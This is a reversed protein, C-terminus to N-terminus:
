KFELKYYLDVGSEGSGAQTELQWQKFIDYRLRFLNSGTFLSRGYSIYLQPTLYKGVTLVTTTIGSQLATPISGPATVPLPKYGMSGAPAGVGGQIELTNLGFLNKLQDQVDAAQGSTLLAGAAKTMLSAQEGNSEYPHGLVIYTLIDVDPMAPESYLKVVPKQISGTVTVGSKVNGITRLALFDLTPHDIPGGAFFLRGRVIELDVGYTRYRGKAVTIEGRSTIRDLSTLQLDVAGGLRADIGAVKVFVREGLLVKIQVDLALSTNAAPPVIIGELIIDSSPTIVTHSSVGDFQLEPLRLEGRLNLKQPTGEFSLEPTSLIRLEPLYVTQFNKGRIIGNYGTVRWGSLTLLASGEIHGSGSLARFSDIRVLNKELRASLQVDKLHIGAAPLYAGAKALQLTGGIQPLEWTGSLVLEADINGFSKQVYGPFLATIIGQEQLQGVMSAQLPGEPNVAIPFHAPVPLQFNARAQGYESMNLALTGALAEGRWKWSADASTFALDQGGRHLAGGSLSATGDLEFREGPLLFGNARGNIIGEVGSDGPLWPKLLAVDIGSWEATLKGKEPIALFLPVTSSFTGKLRGGTAENLEVGVQLGRDGGDFTVQSREITISGGKGTYTGDGTASGSLTLRKGSLLELQVTGQSRGTIQLDKLYPNVRALSLNGWQARLRGTLPKLGLDADVELRESTGATLTLTSLSIQESSVAFAAPAALNWPGSSERGTLRIITGKWIDANYGASLDLEAVSDDSRVTANVAHSALTGEAAITVANLMYGGYAADRLSIAIHGPYGDGQELRAALTAAAIHTGAYSLASGTGTVAGSLQHDRWRVWGDSRLTGAAGPVLLSLDTIRAALTLRQDLEGSAHLDFGKGQLALRSLTLNNDAFEAQLEGNLAQGHLTSELLSCSVSGSFPSEGTGSMHGVANFNAAGKWGPDIRAPNLNRGNITGQLEFGNRWNMDLNGALSGDLIRGTLPALIVGERTGHYSASVAAEQWGEGKNDFTFDGRYSNLTGAFKLTGSLDTPMNLEPALDLGAAKIQLSLVSERPSFALSGDATILGSREPTTLRLRRLNIADRAMGVDGSLKLMKRKGASGAIAVNGFFQETTTSNSRRVQLSFHDMGAIPLALAIALDAVLSPEKFGASVSGQIQGSPSVAKLGTVSLLNDQWIITSDISTVRVPQEQLRRYSIDSVRLQVIMGDFLQATGPVKPWVLGPPKNDPAADDQVRVGNIVLEQVAVTGAMLLLPKWRLELTDLEIKQQALTVRVGTLLLHDVMRGEVKQVSFSIGSQTTVSTLLWRAGQTTTTVWVLAAIAAGAAGALAITAAAVLGKLSPRKM